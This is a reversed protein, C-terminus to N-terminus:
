SRSRRTRSDRRVPQDRTRHRRKNGGDDRHAPRDRQGRRGHGRVHSDCRTTIVGCVGGAVVGVGGAVVSFVGFVGLTGRFRGRGAQFDRHGFRGVLFGVAHFGTGQGAIVHLPGAGAHLTLALVGSEAHGDGAQDIGNGTGILEGEGVHAGGIRGMVLGCDRHAFAIGVGPVQAGHRHSGGAGHAHLYARLVQAPGFTFRDVRLHGAFCVAQYGVRHFQGGRHM